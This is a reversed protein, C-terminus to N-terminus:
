GKVYERPDRIEGFVASWAATKPSALYINSNANGMRGKFNRNATSLCNEGDGLVGNGLGICPGCGAPTVTCGATMLVELTGDALAEMYIKKSAPTVITRVAVKRGSLIEAADRLDELRGNTCTGIFVQHIDTGIVDTVPAYRDVNHPLAVAPVIDDYKYEFKKKYVAGEDAWVPDTVGPKARSALYETVKADPKCVANKAGMEVCMNCITMREGISMNEIAEGEFEVSCYDAGNSTIDGIIKLILDKAGVGPQPKGSVSIHISEPVKLWTDGTAWICGMETRGVGCAFAGLAGSTCTHSDSGIILRGPAAFGEQCMMQHCVGGMDQLDYFHKIGHKKVFDRTFAHANAYEPTGCPVTHDFTIVIRSPDFLGPADLKNFACAVASANEHSICYDPSVFVLDGAYVDRGSKISLLKEAFTKKGAM